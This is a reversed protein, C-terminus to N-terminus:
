IKRLCAVYHKAVLQLTILEILSQINVSVNIPLAYLAELIFSKHASMIVEFPLADNLELLSSVNITHTTFGDNIGLWYIKEQKFGLVIEVKGVTPLNSAVTDVETKLFNLFKNENKFKLEDITTSSIWVNEGAIHKLLGYKSESLDDLDPSSAQVIVMFDLILQNLEVASTKNVFCWQISPRQNRDSVQKSSLNKIPIVLWYLTLVFSAIRTKERRNLWYGKFVQDPLIIGVRSKVIQKAIVIFFENNKLKEVEIFLTKLAEWSLSKNPTKLWFSSDFNLNTYRANVIELKNGPVFDQLSNAKNEASKEAIFFKKIVRGSPSRILTIESSSCLKM